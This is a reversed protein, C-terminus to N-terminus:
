EAVDVVKGELEDKYAQIALELALRAISEPIGRAVLQAVVWERREANTGFLGAAQPIYTRLIERVLAETLGRAEAGTFLRKFFGGIAKFANLFGM